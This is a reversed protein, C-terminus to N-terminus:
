QCNLTATGSVTASTNNIGSGVTFQLNAPASATITVTGPAKCTAKGLSDISVMNINSSQWTLGDSVNLARSQNNSFTGTATFGVQGQPTSTATANSPSVTIKTITPHGAGCGLVFITILTLSLVYLRWNKMSYKSSRSAHCTAAPARSEARWM